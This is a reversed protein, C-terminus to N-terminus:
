VLTPVHLQALAPRDDQPTVRHWSQPFQNAFFGLGYLPEGAGAAACHLAPRSLNYLTSQRADLEADGALAKAARPNVQLLLWVLLPRPATTRAAVAQKQPESLRSNLSAGAVEPSLSGPSVFVLSAVAGPFRAAYAAALRGGYSFGILTVKEAGIQRRIADLDAVDRALSYQAPDALRSSRGSGVEDYVYVDFGDQRLAGWYDADGKLDPVGPGGHLFIVPAPRPEGVAPLHVYAIKSGTPLTMWIQGAVPAPPLRPDSMPRLATLAFALAPIVLTATLAWGRFRNRGRRRLRRTALQVGLLDLGAFVILGAGIFLVPMTTAFAAGLLAVAGLVAASLCVVVIGILRLGIM